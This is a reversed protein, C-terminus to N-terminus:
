EAGVVSESFGIKASSAEAHTTSASELSSPEAVAASMNSEGYAMDRECLHGKGSGYTSAATELKQEVAPTEVAAVVSSEMNAYGASRHCGAAYVATASVVLVGSAVLPALIKMM